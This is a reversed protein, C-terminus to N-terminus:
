FKVSIVIGVFNNTAWISALYCLNSKPEFDENNQLQIYLCLTM